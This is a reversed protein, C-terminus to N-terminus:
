LPETELHMFHMCVSVGLTEGGPPTKHTNESSPLIRVASDHQTKKVMHNTNITWSLDVTIHIGLFKFVPVREVCEGNIHLPEMDTKKRRFDM